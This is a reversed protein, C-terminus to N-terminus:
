KPEQEILKLYKYQVQCNDVNEVCYVIGQNKGREIDYEDGLNFGLIFTLIAILAVAFLCILLEIFHDNNM